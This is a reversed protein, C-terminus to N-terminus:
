EDWEEYALSEQSIALAEERDRKTEPHKKYGAMYQRVLEEEKKAAIWLDIAEAILASRTKKLKKRMREVASFKKKPLSVGIKVSESPM